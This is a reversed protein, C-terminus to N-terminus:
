ARARRTRRATRASDLAARVVDLGLLGAIAAVEGSTARAIGHAIKSTRWRTFGLAKAAATVDLGRADLADMVLTGAM